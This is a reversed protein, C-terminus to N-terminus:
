PAGPYETRLLYLRIHLKSTVLFHKIRKNRLVYRINALIYINALSCESTHSIQKCINAQIHFESLNKFIIAEFHINQLLYKCAFKHSCKSAFMFCVIHIFPTPLYVSVHLYSAFLIWIQKSESRLSYFFTAFIACGLQVLIGYSTALFHSLNASSLKLHLYLLGYLVAILM